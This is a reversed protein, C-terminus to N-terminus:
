TAERPRKKPKPKDVAKEFLPEVESTCAPCRSALKPIATTCKPCERTVVPPAEPPQLRNAAKVILFIVFATLLFVVVTNFFLGYRLTVAGAAKAAELTPYPGAKAGDKLTVFMNTFDVKGLLLGLPPMLVDDVLSKSIGGFAGGIIVGVALDLVNGRMIFKKFEDIM